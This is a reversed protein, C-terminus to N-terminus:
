NHLNHPPVSSFATWPFTPTTTKKCTGGTELDQWLSYVSQTGINGILAAGERALVATSCNAFGACYASGKLAAEFFPQAAITTQGANDAAYLAAYAKALSQGGMTMM